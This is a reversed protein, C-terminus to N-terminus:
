QVPLSFLNSLSTRNEGRYQIPHDQSPQKVYRHKLKAQLHHYQCNKLLDDVRAHVVGYSYKATTKINSPPYPATALNKELM